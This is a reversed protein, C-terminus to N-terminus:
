DTRPAGADGKPRIQRRYPQRLKLMAPLLRHVSRLAASLEEQHHFGALGGSVTHRSRKGRAGHRGNEDHRGLALRQVSGVSAREDFLHLGVSCRGQQQILEPEYLLEAGVAYM